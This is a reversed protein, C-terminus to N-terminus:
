LVLHWDDGLRSQAIIYVHYNNYVISTTIAIIMVCLTSMGHRPRPQLLATWCLPGQAVRGQCHRRCSVMTVCAVCVLSYKELSCHHGFM